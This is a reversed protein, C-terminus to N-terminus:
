ARGRSALETIFTAIEAPKEEAMFHGAQTFQFTLDPAWAKWLSAADFGLQSGWDQTIVGVPMALQAIRCRSRGRGHTLDVGATARYDAVISDVAQVSSDIYHQRVEPTFASATM